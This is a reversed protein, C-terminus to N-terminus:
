LSVLHERDKRTADAVQKRTNLKHKLDPLTVTMRLRGTGKARVEGFEIHHSGLHAVMEESIQALERPDEDDRFYVTCETAACCAAALACLLVM